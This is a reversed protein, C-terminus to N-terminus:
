RPSDHQTSTVHSCKNSFCPSAIPTSDPWDDWLRHAANKLREIRKSSSPSTKGSRLIETAQSLDAMPQLPEVRGAHCMEVRTTEPRLM